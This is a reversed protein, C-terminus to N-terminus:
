PKACMESADKGDNRVFIGGSYVFYESPIKACDSSFDTQAIHEGYNMLAEKHLDFIRNYIKSLGAKKEEQNKTCIQM